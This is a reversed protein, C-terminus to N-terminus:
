MAAESNVEAFVRIQNRLSENESELESRKQESTQLSEREFEVQATLNKILNETEEDVAQASQLNAQLKDIIGTSLKEDLERVEENQKLLEALNDLTSELKQSLAEKQEEMQSIRVQNKEDQETACVLDEHLQRNISQLEKIKESSDELEKRLTAIEAKLDSFSDFLEQKEEHAKELQLQWKDNQETLKSVNQLQRDLQTQRSIIEKTKKSDELLLRQAETKELEREQQISQVQSTLNQITENSSLLQEELSTKQADPEQAVESRQAELAQMANIKLEMEEIEDDKVFIESELESLQLSAEILRGLQKEIQHEHKQVLDQLKAKEEKLTDIEDGDKELLNEMEILQTAANEQIQLRKADLKEIEEDRAFLENELESLQLSAQELRKGKSSLDGELDAIRQNKESITKELKSNEIDKTQSLKEIDDQASELKEIIEQAAERLESESEKCEELEKCADRLKLELANREELVSELNGSLVEISAKSEKEILLIKAELDSIQDASANNEEKARRSEDLEEKMEELQIQHSEGNELIIKDKAELAERLDQLTAELSQKEEGIKSMSDKLAATENRAVDIKETLDNKEKAYTELSSRCETIEATLAEIRTASDTVKQLADGLEIELRAKKYNATELATGLRSNEEEVKKQFEDNVKSEESEGLHYYDSKENDWDQEDAIGSEKSNSQSATSHMERFEAVETDSTTSKMKLLGSTTNLLKQYMGVGQDSPPASSVARSKRIQKRKKLSAMEDELKLHLNHVVADSTISQDDAERLKPNRAPSESSHNQGFPSSLDGTIQQTDYFADDEAKVSDPNVDVVEVSKPSESNVANTSNKPSLSSVEDLQEEDSQGEEGYNERHVSLYEQRLERQREKKPSASFSADLFTQLVRVRDEAAAAENKAIKEQQTAHEFQERLERGLRAQSERESELARIRDLLVKTSEEDRPLVKQEPMNPTSITGRSQRSHDDNLPIPVDEDLLVPVDPETAAEQLKAELSEMSRQLYGKEHEFGVRSKELTDKLENKELELEEVRQSLQEREKREFQSKANLHEALNRGEKLDTQFSDSRGKWEELQREVLVLELRHQEQQEQLDTQLEMVLDDSQQKEHQYTKQDLRLTGIEDLLEQVRQELGLRQKHLLKVHSNSNQDLTVPNVKENENPRDSAIRATNDNIDEAYKWSNTEGYINDESSGISSADGEPFMAKLEKQFWQVQRQSEEFKKSEVKAEEKLKRVQEWLTHERVKREKLARELEAVRMDQAREEQIQLMPEPEESMSSSQRTPIKVAGDSSITNGDGDTSGKTGDHDRQQKEEQESALQALKDIEEELLTNEELESQRRESQKMNRLQDQANELEARYESLQQRLSDRDMQVEALEREVGEKENLSTQIPSPSEDWPIPGQKPSEFLEDGYDSESDTDKTLAMWSDTSPAEVQHDLEDNPNDVPQDEETSASEPGRNSGNNSGSRIYQRIRRPSPRNSTLSKIGNDDHSTMIVIANRSPSSPPVETTTEISLGPRNIRQRSNKARSALSSSTVVPATESPPNEDKTKKKPAVLRKMYNNM